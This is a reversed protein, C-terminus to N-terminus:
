KFENTNTHKLASSLASAAVVSPASPVSSLLHSRNEQKKNRTEQKKNRTEQKKNRTEQKKNDHTKNGNKKKTIRKADEGGM